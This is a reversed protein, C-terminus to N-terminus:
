TTPQDDPEARPELQIEREANLEMGFVLALNSIWMWVLLTVIGGLTGYTEDYSGPVSRLASASNRPSATAACSSATRPPPRVRDLRRHDRGSSGMAGQGQAASFRAGPRTGVVYYLALAFFLVGVLARAQDDSLRTRESVPGAIGSAVKERWCVLATQGLDAANTQGGV